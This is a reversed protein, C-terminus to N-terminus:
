SLLNLFHILQMKEVNDRLFSFFRISSDSTRFQRQSFSVRCKPSVLSASLSCPQRCKQATSLTFRKDMWPLPVLAHLCPMAWSRPEGQRCAQERYFRRSESALSPPFACGEWGLLDPHKIWRSMCLRRWRAQFVQGGPSRPLPPFAWPAGSQFGGIGQGM